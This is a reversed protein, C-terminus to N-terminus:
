RAQWRGQAIPVVRQLLEQLSETPNSHSGESEHEEKDKIGLVAKLFCSNSDARRRKRSDM